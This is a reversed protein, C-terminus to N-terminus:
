LGFLLSAGFRLSSVTWSEETLISTFLPAYSVEPVVRLSSSADIHYRAGLVIGFQFSSTGTIDGSAANYTEGTGLYEYGLSKDTLEEQQEFTAYLLTGARLGAHFGFSGARYEISPEFFVFGLSPNLTHTITTQQAVSGNHVWTEEDATLTGGNSAYVLRGILTLASSLKLDAELGFAAGGGSGSTYEPCCSSIGPLSSFSASHMSLAYAGYVGISWPSALLAPHLPSTEPKKRPEPVPTITEQAISTFVGCMVMVVFLFLSKM